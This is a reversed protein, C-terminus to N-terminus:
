KFDEVACRLRRNALRYCVNLKFGTAEADPSAISIVANFTNEAPVLKRPDANEPLYEGPELVRSGIIDEFRDTLSVHVLPYPLGKDSENGIRSYITLMEDDEDTSGKTAEFRWGSIDWTPTLPKGLMRYVPGVAKNFVPVTALAERSQHLAQLALLLLLAVTGAIMGTRPTSIDGRRSYDDPTRPLPITLAPGDPRHPKDEDDLEARISEGEMIITEVVPPRDLKKEKKEKKKKKEKKTEKNDGVEDEVKKNPQLQVITSAFGDDDEVAFNFLEEDIMMNITKEEESMEPVVHEDSADEVELETERGDFSASMTEIAREVKDDFSRAIEDVDGKRELEDEPEIDEDFELEISEEDEAAAPAEEALEISEEDEAAAPAEEALEISEEDEATAPAEEALEISEEDEAPAEEALEISEEDEDEAPAEEPATPEPEQASEKEAELAELQLAELEAIEAPDLSHEEIAKNRATAESKFAAAILDEEISTEADVEVVEEETEDDKTAHLGSLDIGMAEAQIAFQTDMDPPQEFAAEDINADEVPAEIGAEADVMAEAVVESEEPSDSEPTAAVEAHEGAAETQEFKGAVPEAPEDLDGLLEQWENPDGFALDVQAEAPDPRPPEPEAVVPTAAPAPAASEFDFDEPLPTDDDFRMEEIVEPGDVNNASETIVEDIPKFSGDLMAEVSSEEAPPQEDPAEEAHQEVEDDDLVRWEVGTDEIRIDSGALEDLTKLLAASQEASISKPPTDAELDGPPDPALQPHQREPEPEPQAPAAPEHESLHNLANFAAGCGGCRVKGAAQRLVEATVRFAVDCEPCQTYM